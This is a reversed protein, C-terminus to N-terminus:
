ATVPQTHLILSAPLAQVEIELGRKETRVSSSRDTKHTCVLAVGHIGIFSPQGFHAFSDGEFHNDHRVERKMYKWWM